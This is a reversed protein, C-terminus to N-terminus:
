CSSHCSVHHCPCQNGPLCLCESWCDLASGQLRQRDHRCSAKPHLGRQRRGQKPAAHPAHPSQHEQPAHYAPCSASCICSVPAGHRSGWCGARLPWDLEKICGPDLPTSPPQESQSHPSSDPSWDRYPGRTPHRCRIVHWGSIYVCM